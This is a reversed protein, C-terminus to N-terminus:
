ISRMMSRRGAEYADSVVENCKPCQAIDREAPDDDPDWQTPRGCVMCRVMEPGFAPLAALFEAYVEQVLEPTPVSERKGGNCETCAAVLNWPDDTGGYHRPVVHDVQLASVHAPLGCYHCAFNCRRLVEYRARKSVSM